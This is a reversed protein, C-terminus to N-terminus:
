MITMDNLASIFHVKMGYTKTYHKQPDNLDLFRLGNQKSKLYPSLLFDMLEFDPRYPCGKAELALVKLGRNGNTFWQGLCM